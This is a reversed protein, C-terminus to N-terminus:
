LGTKLSLPRNVPSMSLSLSSPRFRSSRRHLRFLSAPFQSTSLSLYTREESFKGEKEGMEGKAKSSSNDPHLLQTEGKVTTITPQGTTSVIPKIKLTTKPYPNPFDATLTQCPSIRFQSIIIIQHIIPNFLLSQPNPTTQNPLHCPFTITEFPVHTESRTVPTKIQKQLLHFPPFRSIPIHQTASQLLLISSKTTNSKSNIQKFGLCPSM